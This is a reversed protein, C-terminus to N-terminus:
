PTADVNFASSASPSELGELLKLMAQANEAGAGSPEYRLYTRFEGAAEPYRALGMLAHAKTIHLLTGHKSRLAKETIALANEYKGQGILVRAIEYQVSWNNAGALLAQRTAEQAEDYRRQTNYVGALIIYSAYYSPDSRIAAQLDQEASRWQQQSAELFGHLTLADPFTPDIRLAQDVARQADAPKDKEWAAMAKEYLRRAKHPVHFRTVSIRTEVMGQSLSESNIKPQDPQNRPLAASHDGVGQAFSPLSFVFYLFAVVLYRLM